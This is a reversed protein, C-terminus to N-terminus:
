SYTTFTNTSARSHGSARNLTIETDSLVVSNYDSSDNTSGAIRKIEVTLTNGAVEAGVLKNSFLSNYSNNLNANILTTQSKSNGNQDCTVTVTLEAVNSSPQNVAHTIYSNISIDNTKIDKPIKVKLKATTINVPTGSDETFGVGPFSIGDDSMTATGGTPKFDVSADIGRNSSPVVNPRTQGLISFESFSNNDDGLGIRNTINGYTTSSMTNINNDESFSVGTSGSPEPSPFTTSQGQGGVTNSNSVTSDSTSNEISPLTSVPPPIPQFVPNNASSFLFQEVTSTNLSEDNILTLSLEENAM